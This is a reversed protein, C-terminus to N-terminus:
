TSLRPQAAPVTPTISATRCNECCPKLVKKPMQHSRIPGFGSIQAPCSTRATPNPPIANASVGDKTIAAINRAPRPPAINSAGFDAAIAESVM